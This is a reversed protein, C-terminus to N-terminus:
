MDINIYVYPGSIHLWLPPTAIQFAWAKNIKVVLFFILRILGEIFAAYIYFYLVVKGINGINFGISCHVSMWPFLFLISFNQLTGVKEMLKM